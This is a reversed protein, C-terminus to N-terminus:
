RKTWQTYSPLSTEHLLCHCSSPSNHNKSSFTSWTPGSGSCIAVPLSLSFRSRFLLLCSVTEKYLISFSSRIAYIKNWIAVNHLFYTHRTYKLWIYSLTKKGKELNWTALTHLSWDVEQFAARGCHFVTPIGGELSYMIPSLELCTEEGFIDKTSAPHKPLLFDLKLCKVFACIARCKDCILMILAWQCPAKPFM